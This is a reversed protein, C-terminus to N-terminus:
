GGKRRKTVVQHSFHPNSPKLDRHVVGRQHAKELAEAIEASRQLGEKLPLPGKALKEKLTRAKSM